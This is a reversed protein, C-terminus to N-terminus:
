SGEKQFSKRDIVSLFGLESEGDIGGRLDGVSDNLWVVRNEGSVREKFVSVDSDHEIVFGDVIDASSLEVDFSGSVCVQVSKDTLNNRRQSGTKSEVTGQVDIDSFELGVQDGVWSNVKHKTGISGDDGSFFSIM